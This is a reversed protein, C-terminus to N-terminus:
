CLYNLKIVLFCLIANCLVQLSYSQKNMIKFSKNKKNGKKFFLCQKEEDLIHEAILFFGPAGQPSYPIEKSHTGM